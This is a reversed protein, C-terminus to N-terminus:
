VRFTTRLKQYDPFKHEGPNINGNFVIKHSPIFAFQGNELMMCHYWNNNKYFDLSFWYKASVYKAAGKMFVFAERNALEPFFSIVFDISLCNNYVLDKLTYAESSNKMEPTEPNKWYIMHPPVESFVYGGDTIVEFTPVNGELCTLGFLKCKVVGSPYDVDNMNYFVPNKVWVTMSPLDAHVSYSKNM